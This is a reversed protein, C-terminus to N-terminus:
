QAREPVFELLVGDMVHSGSTGVKVLTSCPYKWDRPMLLLKVWYYYVNSFRHIEKKRPYDSMRIFPWPGELSLKPSSDGHLSDKRLQAESIFVPKPRLVLYVTM